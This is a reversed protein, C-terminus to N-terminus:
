GGSAEEEGKVKRVGGEFYTQGEEVNAYPMLKPKGDDGTVRVIRKDSEGGQVITGPTHFDIMEMPPQDPDERRDRVANLLAQHEELPLGSLRIKVLQVDADGPKIIETAGPVQGAHEILERVMGDYAQRSDKLSENIIFKMFYDLYNEPYEGELEESIATNYMRVMQNTSQGQVRTLVGEEVLQSSLSGQIVLPPIKQVVNQFKEFEALALEDLLGSEIELFLDLNEIVMKEAQVRREVRTANIADNKTRAVLPNRKLAVEDLIQELRIVRGDEGEQALPEHEPIPAGAQRAGSGPRDPAPTAPRAVPRPPPAYEPEPEPASPPPTTVQALSVPSLAGVMLAVGLLTRTQRSM